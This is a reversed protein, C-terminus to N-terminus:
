KENIYRRQLEAGGHLESVLIIKETRIYLSSKQNGWRGKGYEMVRRKEEAWESDKDTRVWFVHELKLFRLECTGNGLVVQEFQGRDALGSYSNLGDGDECVEVELWVQDPLSESSHEMFGSM